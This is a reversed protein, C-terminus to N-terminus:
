YEEFRDEELSQKISFLIETGDSLYSQHVDARCNFSTYKGVICHLHCDEYFSLNILVENLMLQM